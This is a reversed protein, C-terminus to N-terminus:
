PQKQQNQDSPNPKDGITESSKSKPKRTGEYPRSDPKRMLM